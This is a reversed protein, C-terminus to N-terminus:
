RSTPDVDAACLTVRVLGTPAAASVPTDISVVLPKVSVFVQPLVSAAPAEHVMETVNAGVALPVSFPLRAIALLAVVV